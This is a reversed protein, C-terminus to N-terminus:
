GTQQTAGSSQATRQATVNDYFQLGIQVGTDFRRQCYDARAPDRMEGDKAFCQALVNYKVYTLFPDPLLFSSTLGLANLAHQAYMLEATFINLPVPQVGFTMFNVRDEFWTNPFDAFAQPWGSDLLDHSMQGQELLAKGNVSIRQIQLCDSPITGIRQQPAFSQTAVTMCFPVRVLYDHQAKDVYHLMEQQTFFPDGTQAVPFTAGTVATGGGHSNAFVATFTTSTTATVTVVEQSAGTGVILLAGTYISAMSGPTVTQTGASIAAAVTTNVVPEVLVASVENLVDNVVKYGM